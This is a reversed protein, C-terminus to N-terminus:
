IIKNIKSENSNRILKLNQNAFPKTAFQSAFEYLYVGPKLSLRTSELTITTYYSIILYNM